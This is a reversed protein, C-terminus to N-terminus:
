RLSTKISGSQVILFFFILSTSTLQLTLLHSPSSVCPVGTIFKAKRHQQKICGKEQWLQHTLSRLPCNLQSYCQTDCGRMPGIVLLGDPLQGAGTCTHLVCDGPSFVPRTFLSLIHIPLPNFYAACLLCLPSEASLPAQQISLLGQGQGYADTNKSRVM